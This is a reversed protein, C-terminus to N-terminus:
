GLDAANDTDITEHYVAAGNQQLRVVAQDVWNLRAIAIIASSGPQLSKTVNETMDNSVGFDALNATVRGTAAGAAAGVIAGIPGGILGILGGTIAGFITGGKKDVDGPDHIEVKDQKTRVIAAAQELELEGDRKLQVIKKLVEGAKNEDDAFTAIILETKM